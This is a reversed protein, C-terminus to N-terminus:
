SFDGTFAQATPARSLHVGSSSAREDHTKRSLMTLARWVPGTPTWQVAPGSHDMGPMDPMPADKSPQKAPPKPKGSPAPKKPKTTGHQMGPMGEMGPMDEMAGAKTKASPKEEPMTMGPMPTNANDMPKRGAPNSADTSPRAADSDTKMGPMAHMSGGGHNRHMGDDAPPALISEVSRTREKITDDSPLRTGIARALEVRALWYDRVSRLYGEYADYEQQKALLAEFTGILMFNLREVQRQVVAERQPVLATAFDTAISRMAAVREVSLRVDNDVQLTLRAEEARAIDLQAEARAIAAQGQSFLPLALSLSPGTLKSGDTERERQVGVDVSGLLRWRKVLGLADALLSAERKAAALDLRKDRAMAQLTELADEEPVPTALPGDFSWQEDGGSLGMRQNLAFRSRVADAHATTAAIRAQSATAQELKLELPSENGAEYYRASLTASAGASKAIADRMAAVQEAAAADYWDREIDLALNSLSSAITQQAREYEGAAFRRRSPLLLLDALPATLGTTIKSPGHDKIWSGSFTPNGIRSAEVVDAQAIGLRAYEAGIQPNRLWAIKVAADVTLPASLLESVRAAVAERDDRTEFHFTNPTRDALLTEVRDAGERRSVGVCASLLTLAAALPLRVLNREM